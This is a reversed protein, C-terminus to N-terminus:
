PSNFNMCKLCATRENLLVVSLSNVLFLISPVTMHELSRFLLQKRKLRMHHPLSAVREQCSCISWKRDTVVKSM